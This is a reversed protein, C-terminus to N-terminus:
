QQWQLLCHPKLLCAGVHVTKHLIDKETNRSTISDVLRGAPILCHVARLTVLAQHEKLLAPAAERQRAPHQSTCCTLRAQPLAGHPPHCQGSAPAISAPTIHRGFAEVTSAFWAPTIHRGIAQVTLASMWQLYVVHGHFCADEAMAPHYCLQFGWVGCQCGMAQGAVHTPM